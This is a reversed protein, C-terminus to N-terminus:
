SNELTKERVLVYKKGRGIIEEVLEEPSDPHSLNAFPM